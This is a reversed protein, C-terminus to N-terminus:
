KSIRLKEFKLNTRQEVVAMGKREGDNGEWEPRDTRMKGSVRKRKGLNFVKIELKTEWPRFNTSRQSRCRKSTFWKLIEDSLYHSKNGVNTWGMREFYKKEFTRGTYKEIGVSQM